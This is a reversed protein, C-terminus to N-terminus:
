TLCRMKERWSRSPVTRSRATMEEWFVTPLPCKRISVHARCPRDPLRCTSAHAQSRASSPCELSCLGLQCATAMRRHPWDEQVTGAEDSSCPLSVATSNLSRLPQANYCTQPSKQKRRALLSSTGPHKKAVEVPSKNYPLSRQCLAGSAM